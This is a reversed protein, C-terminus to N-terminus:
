KRSLLIKKLGFLIQFDHCCLVFKHNVVFIGTRNISRCKLSSYKKRQQTIKVKVFNLAYMTVKTASLKKKEKIIIIIKKQIQPQFSIWKVMTVKLWHTKTIEIFPM